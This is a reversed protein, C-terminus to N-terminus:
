PSVAVRLDAELRGLIERLADGWGAALAEPSADAIAPSAAYGAHFVIKPEAGRVDLLAFRLGLVARPEAPDRHDGYLEEVAGDLLYARPALSRADLVAGFLGSAALWRRVDDALMAQPSTWLVDYFDSEYTQAETRYVFSTGTVVASTRFRMVALVPAGAPASAREPRTAEIVFQRREPYQRSLLGGCGLASAGAFLAAAVAVRVGRDVRVTM